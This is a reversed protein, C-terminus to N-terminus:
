EDVPCRSSLVLVINTLFEMLSHYDFDKLTSGKFVNAKNREPWIFLILIKVIVNDSTAVSDIM